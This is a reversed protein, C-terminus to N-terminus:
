KLHLTDSEEELASGQTQSKLSSAASDAAM